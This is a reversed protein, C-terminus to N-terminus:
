YSIPLLELSMTRVLNTDTKRTARTARTKTSRATSLSRIARATTAEKMINTVRARTIRIVDIAIAETTSLLSRLAHRLQALQLRRRNLATHRALPRLVKAQAHHRRATDLVPRRPPRIFPLQHRLVKAQALPRRLNQRIEQDRPMLAPLPMPFELVSALVLAIM